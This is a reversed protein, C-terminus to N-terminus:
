HELYRKLLYKSGLFMGLICESPDQLALTYHSRDVKWITSRPNMGASGNSAVMRFHPFIPLHHAVGMINVQIIDSVESNEAYVVVM